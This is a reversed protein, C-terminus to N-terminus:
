LSLFYLYYILEMGRVRFPRESDNVKLTQFLDMGRNGHLLDDLSKDSYVRLPIIIVIHVIIYGIPYLPCILVNYRLLFFVITYLCYGM